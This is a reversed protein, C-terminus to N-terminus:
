KSIACCTLEDRHSAPPVGSGPRAASGTRLRGAQVSRGLQDGLPAHLARRQGADPSPRPDASTQRGVVETGLVREDGAQGLSRLAPDALLHPLGASGLPVFRPGKPM